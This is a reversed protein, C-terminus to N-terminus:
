VSVQCTKTGCTVAMGGLGLDPDIIPPPLPLTAYDSSSPEDETPAGTSSESMFTEGQSETTTPNETEMGPSVSNVGPTMGDTPAITAEESTPVMSEPAVTSEEAGLVMLDMLKADVRLNREESGETTTQSGMPTDMPTAWETETASPTEATHTMTTEEESPAFADEFVMWNRDAAGADSPSSLTALLWLCYLNATTKM